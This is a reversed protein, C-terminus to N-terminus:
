KNIMTTSAFGTMDTYDGELIKIPIFGNKEPEGLIQVRTPNVLVVVKDARIMARIKEIDRSKM